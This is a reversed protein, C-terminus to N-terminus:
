LGQGINLGPTSVYVLLVPQTSKMMVGVTPVRHTMASSVRSRKM